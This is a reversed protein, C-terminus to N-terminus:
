PGLVRDAPSTVGSLGRNLAHTYIQKTSVEDHGLLEQVTARGPAM